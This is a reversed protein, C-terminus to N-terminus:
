FYKKEPMKAMTKLYDSLFDKHMVEKIDSELYLGAEIGKKLVPKWENYPEGKKIMQFAYMYWVEPNHQLAQDRAEATYQGQEVGRNIADTMYSFNKGESSLKRILGFFDTNKAVDLLYEISEANEEQTM